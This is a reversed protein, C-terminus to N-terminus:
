AATRLLPMSAVLRSRLTDPDDMGVCALAFLKQRLATKLEEDKELDRFPDNTQVTTWASDFIWELIELDLPGCARRPSTFSGM